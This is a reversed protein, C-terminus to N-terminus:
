MLAASAASATALGACSETAAACFAPPKKASQTISLVGEYRPECVVSSTIMLVVPQYKDPVLNTLVEVGILGKTKYASALGLFIVWVFAGVAVEETWNFTFKLFYRTFVNILVLISTISLFVSGIYLEFNVFFKRLHDKM